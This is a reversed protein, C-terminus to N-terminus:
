ALPPRAIVSQSKSMFFARVSSTLSVGDKGHDLRVQCAPSTGTVLAYAGGTVAM